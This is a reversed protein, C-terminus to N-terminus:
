LQGEQMYSFGTFRKGDWHYALHRTQVAPPILAPPRLIAVSEGGDYRVSRYHIGFESRERCDRGFAQGATWSDPTHLDAIGRADVLDATVACRFCRMTLQRPPEETDEMRRRQSHMSEAVATEFSLGAYYVGFSGDTFRSAVGIHTFAAMIPSTGPGVVRDEPPVLAIEGVEDRLRDNTMSELAYAADLREPDVLSEFLQIPPYWSPIIRYTPADM